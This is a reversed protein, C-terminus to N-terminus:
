RNASAAAAATVGAIVSPLRDHREILAQALSQIIPHKIKGSVSHYFSPLYRKQDREYEYATLIMEFKDIDKILAAEATATESAGDEYEMWLREISDRMTHLHATGATATDTGSTNTKTDAAASANTNTFTNTDSRATLTDCLDRMAKVELKHKESKSVGSVATPPIDGCVAEAIDHVISMAICRAGDARVGGSGSGSGSGSSGRGSGATISAPQDCVVLSILAMRYMHDAISEPLEIRHNVWGTRKTKKLGGSLLLFDLARDSDNRSWDRGRKASASAAVSSAPGNAGNILASFPLRLLLLCAYVTTAIVIVLSIMVHEIPLVLSVGSVNFWIM